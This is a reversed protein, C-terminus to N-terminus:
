SGGMEKLDLAILAVTTQENGVFQTNRQRNSSSLQRTLIPLPAQSLKLFEVVLM